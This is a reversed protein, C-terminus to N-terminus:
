PVYKYGGTNGTHVQIYGLFKVKPPLRCNFSWGGWNNPNFDQFVAPTFSNIVPNSQKTSSLTVTESTTVGSLLNKIFFTCPTNYTISANALQSYDLSLWISFQGRPTTSDGDSQDVASLETAIGTCSIYRNSTSINRLGDPNILFDGWQTGDSPQCQAGTMTQIQAGWTDGASAAAPIGLLATLSAVLLSTRINQTNM